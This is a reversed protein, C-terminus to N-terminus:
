DNFDSKCPAVRGAKDHNPNKGINAYALIVDKQVEDDLHIKVHGDFNLLDRYTIETLDGLVSLESISTGTTADVPKFYAALDADEVYSGYHLHAPYEQNVIPGQLQITVQISLDVRESFTITGVHNFDTASFLDYVVSEGTLEAQEENQANNDSETPEDNKCSIFAFFILSLFFYKM